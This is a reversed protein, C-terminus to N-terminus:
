KKEKKNIIIEVCGDIKSDKLRERWFSDTPIGKEDADVEVIQDVIYTGVPKNIKIKIKM